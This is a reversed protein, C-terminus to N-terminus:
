PRVDSPVFTGKHRIINRMIARFRASEDPYADFWSEDNWGEFASEILTLQDEDFHERLAQTNQGLLAERTVNDYRVAKAVLLAGLACVQCKGIFTDRAQQWLSGDIPALLPAVYQGQAAILAGAAEWELADKAILVRQKAKSIM